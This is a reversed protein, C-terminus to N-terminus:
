SIIHVNGEDMIDMDILLTGGEDGLTHVGYTNNGITVTQGTDAFSSGDSIDINVTDDGAGHIVLTNSNSSLGELIDASITLEAEAAGRLDIADINMGSLGGNTLDVFQHGDEEMALLNTSTNGADDALTVLLHSGDPVDETPMFITDNPNFIDVASLHAINNVSGNAGLVQLTAEDDETRVTFRELENNDDLTYSTMNVAEPAVTDVEFSATTTATNLAADTATVTIDATFEGAGVEAASLDLSWNGASDVTADYDTGEYDVVVTSGVEVTGTLTLGLAVEAANAIGDGAIPGDLSLDSVLTDVDVTHTIIEINGAPDSATVTITAPYEGSPIENPAFYVTWTGDALVQASNTIMGIRVSVLAHPDVNGTLTVGNSAEAGSIVDDGAVPGALDLPLETDIHVSSEAMSTNGYADTITATIPADYTGTPISARPFDVSWNGAASAVVDLEAGGLTVTVTMGPTATGTVIVGNSHEVANVINNGEIPAASIAVEGAVTDVMVSESVIDTNGAVDITTATLTTVYEGAPISGQPFTVTWNGNADVTAPRSATGLQVMVSGGVETTGTITLGRSLEAESIVGDAQVGNASFGFDRVITDIEVTGTETAINGAADSSTVVVDVQYEDSNIASNPIVVSWSGTSSVVAQYDTGGFNVSVQSGIQTTGTLEVGNSASDINVVDRGGDTGPTLTVLGVTDIHITSTTTTSNGFSDTAVAVVDADYEGDPFDSEAFTVRWGGSANAVTAYSTGGISVVLRAGPESVGQIAVGGQVEDGNVIDDGAVVGIEVEPAVTDIAFSPGALRYVTGGPNTVTVHSIHSGDAPFDGGSFTATWTGNGGIVTSVREGGVVVVVTAGPAGTGTVSFSHDAEINFSYTEGVNDVTPAPAGGGGSGGTSSANTGGGGSGLIAVGAAGAAAAAAPLAFSGLGGLGMAGLGLAPAMTVEESEGALAADVATDAADSMVVVPDDPFVLADLESWKGWEAAETFSVRGDAEITAELLTGGENLFLHAAGDDDYFDQLVIRRGDALYLELNNGAQVYERIDVRRLNLSVVGSGGLNLGGDIDSDVVAGRQTIGADDRIVYHIASM